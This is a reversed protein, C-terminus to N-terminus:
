AMAAAPRLDAGVRGQARLAKLHAIRQYREGEFEEPRPPAGRLAELLERLGAEVTWRAGFGPMDARLRDCNVRYSRRDALGAAKYEIRSGPVTACVREAIERVLFNEETRGVNYARGRIAAEPAELAAAFSAAFDDVHLLPRWALGDSKLLVRGTALAWAVLNNAVLDFRIRPSFGYATAARMFVPCFDRGALAAIAEEAAAKSVAYPTLPRLPSREDVWAEGAAGYVSCSSAFVFRRVGARKAAQAAAVAGRHNVADTLRPDLAGLADNSLAALHVAADAGAFHAPALDRVDLALTPVAEPEAGFSCGRFLDSDIGSVEHGLRRLLPCLLAGVYGRNGTVVVKM